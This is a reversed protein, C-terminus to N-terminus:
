GARTVIGGGAGKPTPNARFTPTMMSNLLGRTARGSPMKKYGGLASWQSQPQSRCQLKPVTRVQLAARECTLGPSTKERCFRTSASLSLHARHRQGCGAERGACTKANWNAPSALPPWQGPIWSPKKSGGGPACPTSVSAWIVRLMAIPSGAPRPWSWRRNAFPPTMPSTHKHCLDEGGKTGSRVRTRM